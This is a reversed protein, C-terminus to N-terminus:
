KATRCVFKYKFSFLVSSFGTSPADLVICGKKGYHEVDLNSRFFGTKPTSAQASGASDLSYTLFKPRLIERYVFNNALRFQRVDQYQQVDGISTPANKDNYDTAMQLVASGTTGALSPDNGTTVTIEIADIKIEDFLAALDTYGPVAVTTYNSANSWLYANQNTFWLSFLKFQVSGVGPGFGASNIVNVFSCTRYMIHDGQLAM